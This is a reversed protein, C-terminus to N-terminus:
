IIALHVKSDIKITTGTHLSATGCISTFYHGGAHRLDVAEHGTEEERHFSLVRNAVTAPGGCFLTREGNEDHTQLADGANHNLGEHNTQQPRSVGV